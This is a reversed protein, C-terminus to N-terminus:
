GEKKGESSKARQEAILDDITRELSWQLKYKILKFLKKLDPKRRRVDVFGEGYADEYSVHVIKSSSNAREIILEALAQISIEEDKGVNVIQGNASPNEALKDFMVVADRVDCFSRTQTGDGYVTVPESSVAQQIFRPVVMGYQGMQRSGIVNFIRLISIRLGYKQVFSLGLAEDAMKSIAYNWRSNVDPTVVLTREEDLTSRGSTGYVESSSAMLIVPNWGSDRVFRLVRESGAINTALVRTPEEIVKFIGVVGAMHYIRDAWSVAKDLDPWILIDAEDFRFNSNDSYQAINDLSGTLLNDVVHVNDGRDMHYTVIHSGIFGAGGTVLVHM